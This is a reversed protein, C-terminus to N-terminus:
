LAVALSSAVAVPFAVATGGVAKGVDGGNGVTLAVPVPVKFSVSTGVSEAGIVLVLVTESGSTVTVMLPVTVTVPVPPVDAVAIGGSSLAGYRLVVVTLTVPSLDAVATGRVSVVTINGLVVDKSLLSAIEALLVAEIAVEAGPSSAVPAGAVTVKVGVALTVIVAEGVEDGQMVIVTVCPLTVCSIVLVIALSLAESRGVLSSTRGVDPPSVEHTLSPTSPLVVLQSEVNSGVSSVLEVVHM